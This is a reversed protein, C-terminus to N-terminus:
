TLRRVTVRGPDGDHKKAFGALEARIWTVAQRRQEDTPQPLGKPPMRNQELVAAVKEWKQFGEGVSAQSTLQDLNIGATQLSKGHCQICYQRFTAAPNAATEDGRITRGNYVALILVPLTLAVLGRRAQVGADRNTLGRM